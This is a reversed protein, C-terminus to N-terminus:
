ENEDKNKKNLYDKLLQDTERKLEQRYAKKNARNANKVEDKIQRTMTGEIKYKSRETALRNGNKIYPRIKM